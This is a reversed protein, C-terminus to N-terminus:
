NSRDNMKREFPTRSILYRASNSDEELFEFFTDNTILFDEFKEKYSPHTTIEIAIKLGDIEVAEELKAISGLFTQTGDFQLVDADVFTFEAYPLLYTVFEDSDSQYAYDICNFKMCSEFITVKEIPVQYYVKDLLGNTPPLGNIITGKLTNEPDVKLHYSM